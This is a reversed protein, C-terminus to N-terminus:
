LSQVKEEALMQEVFNKIKKTDMIGTKIDGFKEGDSMNSCAIMLARCKDRGCLKVAGDPYFVENYLKLLNEKNDGM